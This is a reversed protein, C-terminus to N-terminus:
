SRNRYLAPDVASAFGEKNLINGLLADVKEAQEVPSKIMDKYDILVISFNNKGAIWKHFKELQEKFLEALQEEGVKAGQRGSRELMKRQSVLVENMERKLFVVRYEYDDPLDYLLSYVM